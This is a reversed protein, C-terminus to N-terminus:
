KPEALYVIYDTSSGSKAVEKFIDVPKLERESAKPVTLALTSDDGFKLTMIVTEAADNNVVRIGTAAIDTIAASATLVTHDFSRKYPAHARKLIEVENM